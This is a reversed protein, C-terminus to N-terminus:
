PRGRRAATPRERESDSPQEMSEEEPGAVRLRASPALSYRVEADDGVDIRTRDQVALATLLQDARAEPVDLRAALEAATLGAEVTGALQEAAAEWAREEAAKAETRAAVAKSRARLALLAGIMAVVGFLGLPTTGFALGLLTGFLVSVLTFAAWVGGKIRQARGARVRTGAEKLARTVAQTEVGGPLRPMGCVACVWAVSGDARAM